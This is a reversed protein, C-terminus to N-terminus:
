HRAKSSPVESDPTFLGDKLFMVEDGSYHRQATYNLGYTLSESARYMECIEPVDDYSVIWPRNFRDSQLLNAIQLHDDHGYFNRYLGRGKVYYPPDLYILSQEPLFDACRSLLQFADECYVEIDGARAAIREIRASIVDKKFRADLKYTGSQAKGGIVGGKLIGSRATRNVFLTAFGREVLDGDIEGLMVSRWYHWQDITISTDNILALIGDPAETVASWFANVAPDVDNIHIREVHGHFLLELAVGAGGAYPELYHGGELGNARMIETVYPAFKAKGGPYRLPSYLKNSYM